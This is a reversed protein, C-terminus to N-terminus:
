IAPQQEAQKARRANTEAVIKADWAERGDKEIMESKEAATMDKTPKTSAAHGARATSGARAGAGSKAPWLNGMDRAEPNQLDAVFGEWTLPAGDASRKPTGDSDVAVPIGDSGVSSFGAMLALMSIVEVSSTYPKTKAAATSLGADLKAGAAEIERAKDRAELDEIRKLHAATEEKARTVDAAAEAKVAAQFEAGTKGHRGGEAEARHAKADATAKELKETLDGVTTELKELKEDRDKIKGKNADLARELPGDADTLLRMKGNREAYAARFPEAVKADFETLEVVRPLTPM